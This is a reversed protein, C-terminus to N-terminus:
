QVGIIKGDVGRLVQKPRSHHENITNILDGLALTMQQNGQSIADAIPKLPHEMVKAMDEESLYASEGDDEAASPDGIVSQSPDGM